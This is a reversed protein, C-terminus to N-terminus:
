GQPVLIIGTTLLKNIEMICIVAICSYCLTEYIDQTNWPISQMADKFRVVASVYFIHCNSSM